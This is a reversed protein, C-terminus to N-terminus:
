ETLDSHPGQAFRLVENVRVAVRRQVQPMAPVPEAAPDYGDMVDYAEINEVEGVLQFGVDAVSDWIVLAIRKNATLNQVTGPCFWETLDVGQADRFALGAASAIHPQGQDSATAVIVYEIKAALERAQEFLSQNM